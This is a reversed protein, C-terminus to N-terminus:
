ENRAGIENFARTSCTGNEEGAEEMFGALTAAGDTAATDRGVQRSADM